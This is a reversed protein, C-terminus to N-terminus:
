CNAYRWGEYNHSLKVDLTYSLWHVSECMYYQLDNLHVLYILPESILLWVKGANENYFVPEDDEDSSEQAYDPRKGSM